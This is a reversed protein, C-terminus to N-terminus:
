DLARLNNFHELFNETYQDDIERLAYINKRYLDNTLVNQLKEEVEHETDSILDGRLGLQHYIVRSSNGMTDTTDHLPYVLMPVGSYISEKISNLGGHTIFADAKSLIELQPAAKLIYVNDPLNLFEEKKHHISNSSIIVVYNKNRVVNILKQLFNHVAKTDESKVSGFSCYVLSANTELIKKRILSDIKFYEIDSVEVRNFDPLFGIYHQHETKTINPFDFEIPALVLENVNQFSFGLITKHKSIYKEPLNKHKINKKIIATNDMGIFKLKQRAIKKFISLNFKRIAKQIGTEDDPLVLSNIPPKGKHITTPLMTQIFAVKTRRESLYNHLVIFDTSQLADIFLYDPSLDHMLQQLEAERSIFVSNTWRDKLIDLYLHKSKNQENLWQEFGMGFPVTKLPYYMFGQGEMYDKFFEVGAFVVDHNKSLMRAMKFCANFHGMGHYILFVVTKMQESANM